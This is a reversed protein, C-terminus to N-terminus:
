SRKGSTIIFLIRASARNTEHCTVRSSFVKASAQRRARIRRGPHDM